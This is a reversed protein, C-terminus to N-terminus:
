GRPPRCNRPKKAGAENFRTYSYSFVRCDSGRFCNRPKKAGAENFREGSAMRQM